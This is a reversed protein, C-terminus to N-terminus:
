FELAIFLIRIRMTSLLTGVLASVIGYIYGDTLISTLFVAFIFIATIHEYVGTKKCFLVAALHM